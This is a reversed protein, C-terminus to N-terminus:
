DALRCVRCGGAGERSDLSLSLQPHPAHPPTGLLVRTPLGEACPAQLPLRPYAPTPLCLPPPPPPPPPPPLPYRALALGVELLDLADPPLQARDHRHVLTAVSEGRWRPFTAQYAPLSVLSPAFAASPTGLARFIRFLQDIESEGPFLPKGTVMEGFICGVSWLQARACPRVHSSPRLASPPVLARVCACVLVRVCVCLHACSPPTRCLSPPM